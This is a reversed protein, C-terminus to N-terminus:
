VREERHVPDDERGVDRAQGGLARFAHRDGRDLVDEVKEGAAEIRSEHHISAEGIAPALGTRRTPRIPATEMPLAQTHPKAAAGPTKPRGQSITSCATASRESSSAPSAARASPQAWAVPSQPARTRSGSIWRTSM